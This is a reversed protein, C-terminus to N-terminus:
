DNKQNLIVVDGNKIGNSEFSQFKNIIKGKCLFYNESHSFDPYEKYLEEELDHINSTNKCIMSYHAKQDVSTFIISILKENEELIYPYKKLKKNLEDRENYLEFM